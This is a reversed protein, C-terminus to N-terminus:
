SESAPADSGQAEADFAGASSPDTGDAAATDGSGNSDPPLVGMSLARKLLVVEDTIVQLFAPQHLNCGAASHLL